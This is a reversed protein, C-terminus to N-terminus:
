PAVAIACVGRSHRLRSNSWVFLCNRGDFAALTLLCRWTKWTECPVLTPVPPLRAM